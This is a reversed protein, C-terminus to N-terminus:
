RGSGRGIGDLPRAEACALVWEVVMGEIWDYTIGDKLPTMGIVGRQTTAVIARNDIKFSLRELVGSMEEIWPKANIGGGESGIDLNLQHSQVLAKAVARLHQEIETCLRNWAKSTQSFREEDRAAKFKPNRKDVKELASDLKASLADSMPREPTAVVVERPASLSAVSVEVEDYPRRAPDRTPNRATERASGAGSANPASNGREHGSAVKDAVLM